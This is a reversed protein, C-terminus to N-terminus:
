PASVSATKPAAATTNASTLQLPVPLGSLGTTTSTARLTWDGLPLGLVPLEKSTEVLGFTVTGLDVSQGSCSAGGAQTATVKVTSASASKVVTIRASGLRVQVVPAPPATAPTFDTATAASAACTGLYGTYTKAPYLLGVTGDAGLCPTTLPDQGATCAPRVAYGGVTDAYLVAGLGTWAGVPAPAPAAGASVQLLASGPRAYRLAEVVAMKGATVASTRVQQQKNDQGVHGQTNIVATYTGNELGSFVLCGDTDTVATAVTAGAADFLTGRIGPYGRHQWTGSSSRVPTDVQWGLAGPTSPADSQYIRRFSENRVLDNVGMGPWTVSVEVRKRTLDAGNSSCANDASPILTIASTVTYAVGKSAPTWPSGDEAVVDTDDAVRSWETGLFFEKKAEALNVAVQKENATDTTRLTKVVLGLVATSLLAFILMSVIVEVLTFGEDERTRPPTRM